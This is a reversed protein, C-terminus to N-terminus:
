VGFRLAYENEAMLLFERFSKPEIYLDWNMAKLMAGELYCLEALSWYGGGIEVWSEMSYPIDMLYKGALILAVFYVRHRNYVTLTSLVHPEILNSRGEPCLARRVYVMAALCISTSTKEMLQQIWDRFPIYNPDSELHLQRLRKEDLKPYQFNTHLELYKDIFTCCKETDQIFSCKMAMISDNRMSDTSVNSDQRAVELKRGFSNQRVPMNAHLAHLTNGNM